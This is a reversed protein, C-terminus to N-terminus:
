RRRLRSLARLPRTVRWSRRALVKHTSSEVVSGLEAQIRLLMTLRDDTPLAAQTRAITIFFEFGDTDFAGVEALGHYGLERLDHLLLRFSTPTFRWRHFDVYEEQRLARELM